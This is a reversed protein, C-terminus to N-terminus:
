PLSTTEAGARSGLGQWITPDVDSGV